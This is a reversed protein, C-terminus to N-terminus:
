TDGSKWSAKESKAQDEHRYCQADVDKCQARQQPIIEEMVPIHARLTSALENAKSGELGLM